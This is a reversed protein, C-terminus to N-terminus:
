NEVTGPELILMYSYSVIGVGSELYKGKPFMLLRLIMILTNLCINLFHILFRHILFSNLGIDCGTLNAFVTFIVNQWKKYVADIARSM